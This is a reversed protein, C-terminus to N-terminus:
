RTFLCSVHPVELSSSLCATLWYNIGDILDPEGMSMIVAAMIIALALVQAVNTNM